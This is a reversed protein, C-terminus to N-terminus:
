TRVRAVTRRRRRVTAVGIAALVVLIPILVVCFLRLMTELHAINRNLDFEVRRLQERTSLIEQRAAKIAATQAPTVVAQASGASGTGHRLATLKSETAKLRSELALETRRFRAQAQGQMADILTFPRSVDGRGRLSLLLDGGALSGVLNSILAGNDSFPEAEPQGFFNQVRVWSRDAMVDTDAIVVLDAPKKTEAIFRPMHPARQVGKPLPPPGSFASHLVGRIRAAIVRQGGSPKYDSLIKAPNPNNNVEAVPLLESQSSSELLPTFTVKAGPKRAIFGAAAVSVQTLDATAPDSRSIGNRINFWAVYPVASVQEGARAQIQWAGTLDGVVVKPDYTIGWAKFLRPLNSSTDTPAAGGPLRISAQAESFPDVMAMLRGGRMVFQDIAYLTSPSLHQPQVVLLVKIKPDIVQADLPVQRVDFNQELELMSMWPGGPQGPQARGMAMLRPNGNVPLSTMVGVEVPKPHALQQVLRTLDYELFRERSPEFFPISRETDILNTGALGFYVKNGSQNLPVGQLGYALAQDETRSFPLPDYFKIRIMGHSRAAYQRLMAQVREAYEAYSPLTAGLKRSYYLKLTIPEHLRALTERTGKSLTYIGGQTLDLRADGLRAEAFLNVGIAIVAVAVVALASSWFRRGAM